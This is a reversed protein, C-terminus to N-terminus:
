QACIATIELTVDDGCASYRCSIKCGRDSFTASYSECVASFEGDFGGGCIKCVTSEGASLVLELSIDGRRVSVFGNKDAKLAYSAGDCSYELYVAGFSLRGVAEAETLVRGEAASRLIYLRFKKLGDSNSSFTEM